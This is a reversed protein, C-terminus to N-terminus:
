NKLKEGIMQLVLEKAGANENIFIKAKEGRSERLDEDEMKRLTKLLDNASKVEEGGGQNLLESAELFRAHNPGFLVPIGFAAPELVNHIGAGFGGGVYAVSGLRYLRSLDGVKDYILVDTNATFLGDSSFLEVKLDYELSLAEVDVETIEHPVILLQYTDKLEGFISLLMKEDKSWTSGAVILPRITLGVNPVSDQMQSIQNVRDFRTDGSVKVQEVGISDLLSKSQEDQVLVATISRLARRFLGGYFKFFIQDIKFYASILLTPIDREKAEGLLNLWIEYKVLVLMSPNLREFLAKMKSRTDLPLPFVLDVNKYDKRLYYGSPSYFSLVVKREPHTEKLADIVPRAQEFEGVSACHFWLANKFELISNYDFESRMALWDSAKKNWISALRIAFAYLRIALNYLIM